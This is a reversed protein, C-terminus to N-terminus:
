NSDRFCLVSAQCHRLIRHHIGPQRDDGYTRRHSDLTVVMRPVLVVPLEFTGIM